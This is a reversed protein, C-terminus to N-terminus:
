TCDSVASLVSAFHPLRLQLGPLVHLRGDYVPTASFGSLDSRYRPGDQGLRQAGLNVAMSLQLVHDVHSYYVFVRSALLDLGTLRTLKPQDFTDYQCDGAALMAQDFMVDKGNGHAFWSEVAFELALNGMSHALLTTRNGRARAALLLPGLTALFSMLHFGSQRAMSQDFLYDGQLIPVSVIQGKSPWSFAIVTTNAAAIGSAAFWERNFAARTIADSFTNDFGHIFVLLDRGAEGIDGQADGSFSGRNTSLIQTIAGQANTTVNIGDVFATGYTIAMPDTPPVMMTPYGNVWDSPNSVIRNTAFFVTTPM